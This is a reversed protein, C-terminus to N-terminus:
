GAVFCAVRPESSHTRNQPNSMSMGINPASRRAVLNLGGTALPQTAM